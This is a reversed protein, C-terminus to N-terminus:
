ACRGVGGQGGDSGTSRVRFVGDADFGRVVEWGDVGAFVVGVHQGLGNHIWDSGSSFDYLSPLGGSIVISSDRSRNFGIVFGM